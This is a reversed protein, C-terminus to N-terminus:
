IQTRRKHRIYAANESLIDFSKAKYSIDIDNCGTLEAIQWYSKKEGQIWKRLNEETLLTEPVVGNVEQEKRKVAITEKHLRMKEKQADKDSVSVKPKEQPIVIPNKNIPETITNLIVTSPVIDYEHLASRFDMLISKWTKMVQSPGYEIFMQRLDHDLESNM